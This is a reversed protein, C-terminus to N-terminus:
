DFGEAPAGATPSTAPIEQMPLVEGAVEPAGGNDGSTEVAEEPEADSAPAEPPEFRRDAEAELQTRVEDSAWLSEMEELKPLADLSTLGFHELFRGTTAYLLPRGIAQSRGRVTVLERDLLTHLVAGCDVGRLEEIEGRTIPQRYAVVALAELAARSLRSRRKGELFREVYSYFDPNSVLQWGDAVRDLRWGRGDEEYAAALTELAEELEEQSIEPVAMALQDTKQPGEAAFLIAELISNLSM